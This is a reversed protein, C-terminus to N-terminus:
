YEEEDRGYWTDYATNGYKWKGQDDEDEESSNDKNKEM